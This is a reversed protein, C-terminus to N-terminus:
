CHRQSWPFRPSVPPVHGRGGTKCPPPACHTYFLLFSVSSVTSVMVFASVLVVSQLKIALSLQSARGFNKVASREPGTGWMKWIREPAVTEYRGYNDCSMQGLEIALKDRYDKTVNKNAQPKTMYRRIDHNETCIDNDEAVSERWCNQRAAVILTLPWNVAQTWMKEANRSVRWQPQKMQPWNWPMKLAFKRGACCQRKRGVSLHQRLAAHLQLRFDRKQQFVYDNILM